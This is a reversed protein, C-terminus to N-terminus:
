ANRAALIAVPYAYRLRRNRDRHVPIGHAAESM